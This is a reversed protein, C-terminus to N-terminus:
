RSAEPEPTLLVPAERPEPKLSRQHLYRATLGVLAIALIGIIVVREQPTFQFWAGIPHPEHASQESM